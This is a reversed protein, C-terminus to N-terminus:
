TGILILLQMIKGLLADVVGVGISLFIVVVLVVVTAGYLERKGPWTVKKLEAVVEDFFVRVKSTKKTQEM